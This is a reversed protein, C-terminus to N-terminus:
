ETESQTDNPVASAANEESEELAPEQSIAGDAASPASSVDTVGGFWKNELQTLVEDRQMTALAEEIKQLLLTEGKGAVIVFQSSGITEPEDGSSMIIKVPAGSNIFYRATIEDVAATTIEGSLLAQMVSNESDYEKIEQMAGCFETATSLLQKAAGDSKWGLVGGSLDGINDAPSDELVAFVQRTSLYPASLELLEDRASSYAYGSCVCDVQGNALANWAGQQDIEVFRVSVNLRSAIETILDIDFGAYGDEERYSLPLRNTYIGVALEQKELINQWSQGSATPQDQEAPRCASTALLAFVFAGLLLFFRKM